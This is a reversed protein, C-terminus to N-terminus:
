LDAVLEANGFAGDFRVARVDLVLDVALRSGIENCIRGLVAEEIVLDDAVLADPRAANHLTEGCAPHGSRATHVVRHAIRLLACM